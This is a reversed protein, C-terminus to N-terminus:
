IKGTHDKVKYEINTGEIVETIELPNGDADYFIDGVKYKPVLKSESPDKLKYKSLDRSYILKYRGDAMKVEV